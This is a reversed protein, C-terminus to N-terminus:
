SRITMFLICVGIFKQKTMTHMSNIQLMQKKVWMMANDLETDIWHMIM